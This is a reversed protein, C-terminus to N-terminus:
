WGRDREREREGEDQAMPMDRDYVFGSALLDIIDLSMRVRRLDHRSVPAPPPVTVLSIMSCNPTSGRSASISGCPRYVNGLGRRSIVYARTNIDTISSRPGAATCGRSPSRGGEAGSRAYIGAVITQRGVLLLLLLSVTGCASLGFNNLYLCRSQAISGAIRVGRVRDRKIM